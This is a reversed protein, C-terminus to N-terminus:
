SKARGAFLELRARSRFQTPNPRAGRDPELAARIFADFRLSYISTTFRGRGDTIRRSESGVFISEVKVTPTSRAALGAVAVGRAEVEVVVVVVDVVVVVVVVVFGVVVVVLGVVVVVSGVVVVVVVM